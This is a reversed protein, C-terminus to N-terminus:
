RSLHDYSAVNAVRAGIVSVTGPMERGATGIPTVPIGFRAEFVSTDLAVPSAVILEYEEGSSLGEEATVGDVLPLRSADVTIGVGSAAALHRLDGLLGDSLDIAATAGARALWQGECLRAMPRAFRERHAGPDEGAILRHLAAGPGGVRGTLYIRDGPRAGSRTLPTFAAGFVTTTISLEAGAAINGGRVVTGADRVADGIGDGLEFLEARWAEPVVLSVLIGLPRAGMAALDSLAAIVARRALERASMWERRFHRHEVAADVSAVVQEGRPVAFMAADDGIGVARDGWREVLMRIVDFEAGPGLPTESV